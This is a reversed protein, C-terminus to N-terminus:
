PKSWVGLKERRALDEAQHFERSCATDPPYDKAYAYGERVLTLNVFDGDVVVYRLLRDYRDVDSHDKYLLATERRVLEENRDTAEAGYFEEQSQVEPADIGIYRVRYERGDIAVRITDGDTISVVEAEEKHALNVLCAPLSLESQPSESTPTTGTPGSLSPAPILRQDVSCASLLVVLTLITFLTILNNISSQQNIKM